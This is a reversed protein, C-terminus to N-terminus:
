VSLQPLHKLAISADGPDILLQRLLLAHHTVPLQADGRSIVALDLQSALTM